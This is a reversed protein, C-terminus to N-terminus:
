ARHGRCIPKIQTARKRYFGGESTTYHSERARRNRQDSNNRCLFGHILCKGHDLWWRTRDSSAPPLGPAISVHPTNEEDDLDLLHISNSFADQQKEVYLSRRLSDKLEQDVVDIICEFTSWVPRHDSVRLDATRYQVQRLNTGRWLVRDCWAPIRGKESGPFKAHISDLQLSEKRPIMIMLELM